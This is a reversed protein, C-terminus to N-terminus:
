GSAGQWLLKGKESSLACPAHLAYPLATCAFAHPGCLQAAREPRAAELARSVRQVADNLNSAGASISPQRRRAAAAREHRALAAHAARAEQQRTRAQRESASM